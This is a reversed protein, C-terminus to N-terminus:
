EVPDQCVRAQGQWRGYEHWAIGFIKRGETRQEACWIGQRDVDGTSDVRSSGASLRMGRLLRGLGSQSNCPTM